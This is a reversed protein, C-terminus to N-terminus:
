GALKVIEAVAKQDIQSTAKADRYLMLATQLKKETSLDYGAETGTEVVADFLRALLTVDLCASPRTATALWQGIGALADAYIELGKSTIGRHDVEPALEILTKCLEEMQGKEVGLLTEITRLFEGYARLYAWNEGGHRGTMVYLTDVGLRGAAELYSSAPERTGREYMYQTTKGVGCAAGFKEQSMGLREREEKLRKGLSEM